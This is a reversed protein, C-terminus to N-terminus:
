KKLRSGIHDIDISPVFQTNTYLAILVDEDVEGLASQAIAQGKGAKWAAEWIRALVRAGDAMTEITKDGFAEWLADQVAVTSKGGAEVYADVIDSPPLRKATRDMLRIVEVAADHGSQIKGIKPGTKKLEATVGAVIQEAYRDIMKTEYTSHVGAGLHSEEEYEEGTDRRRHTITTKKDSYGDALVSGHLPQCADGVYHSLLGAACLYKEPRKAAALDAMADFFQWIRFPLLGREKQKTAGVEDYFERWVDVSVNAPDELCLDRLTKGDSDRPHDIDAYHTPHEPGTPRGMGAWRDDRGGVVKSKHSKWILDPVDALPILGGGAKAAKIRAAIVKPSLGEMPFAIRDENRRMFTALKGSAMARVAFTGISYHGLQGWYPFVGTNGEQVIEVNLVRCVTTLSTALAFAYRQSATGEQFVQGGWEIALPRLTGDFEEDGRRRRYSDDDESESRTGKAPLVLHWIAGSDGPQTQPSVRGQREADLERPAILFDSVYEFGGVSRFRYFLAKIRGELRGSTGGVAVVPADILRVTINLSNLDALGGVPGHGILQSTWENIDNLEILGVDLNVYTMRGPFDPYVETFPLRELAHESGTGIEVRRGRANAYVPEGSSGCVHRSTLAYTTKGDTVLCGATARRERQQTVVSIPMGSGFRGGPWLSNASTSVAPAPAAQDVKTVCVPVRRGDPMYLTRPVMDDPSMSGSGGFDSEDYWERVFAHVCPWSYRRVESNALTRPGRAKKRTTTEEGPLPDERRILYLGIGTGVVNPKNLLHYHYLERAQLLDRISLSHYNQPTGLINAM